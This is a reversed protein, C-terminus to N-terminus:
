LSRRVQDYSHGEIILEIVRRARLIKELFDDNHEILVRRPHGTWAERIMLNLQAAEKYSETRIPNTSDFHDVSATDLHIVWDYRKLEEKRTTQLSAFFDDPDAPWYAISDLSGRDCVVVPTKTEDCILDELERQTFCIARQAHKKGVFSSKRPFGGRYLLTAAEQVVSVKNHLDKQIAEILTTKGGSPGGTVVIKLKKNPM